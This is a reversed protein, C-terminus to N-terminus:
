ILERGEDSESGAYSTDSLVVGDAFGAAVARRIEELSVSEVFINM